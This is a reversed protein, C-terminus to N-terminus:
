KSRNLRKTLWYVMVAAYEPLDGSKTGDWKQLEQATNLKGKGLRTKFASLVAKRNSVLHSANLNLINQAFDRQLNTDDSEIQGSGLFKLKSEIRPSTSCPDFSIDSDGKQTDCHRIGNTNKEGGYCAGLLNKYDLQKEPYKNESKSQLHEIKMSESDPKIRSQCYCCLGKQEECLQKRIDDKVNTPLQGYSADKQLRYEQLTKPESGKTITRM